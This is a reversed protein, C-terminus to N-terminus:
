PIVKCDCPSICKCHMCFVCTLLYYNQLDIFLLKTFRHCDILLFHFMYCFKVLVRTEMLSGKM